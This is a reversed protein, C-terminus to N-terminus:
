TLPAAFFKHLARNPYATCRTSFKVPQPAKGAAVLKRFTERCFPSLPAIQSWRSMGDM